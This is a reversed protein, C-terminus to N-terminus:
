KAPYAQELTHVVQGNMSRREDKAAESVREYLSEPLRISIAMLREDQTKEM